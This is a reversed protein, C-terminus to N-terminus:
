WRGSLFRAVLGAHSLPRSLDEVDVNTEYDLLLVIREQAELARLAAIEATLKNELM